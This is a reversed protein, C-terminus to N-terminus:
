RKGTISLSQSRINTLTCLRNMAIVKKENPKNLLLLMMLIASLKYSFRGHLHLWKIEQM